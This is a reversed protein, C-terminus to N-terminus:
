VKFFAMVLAYVDLEPYKRLAMQILRTLPMYSQHIFFIDVFDKAESREYLASLKNCSIDVSNDLGIKHYPDRLIPRLRGPMDLAFDMELREGRRVLACEFLTEFRRGLAVRAQVKKAIKRIWPAVRGVAQTAGTFFDLDDSLRHQLYYASLATGGTLYFDKM